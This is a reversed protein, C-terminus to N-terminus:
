ATRRGPPTRCKAKRSAVSDNAAHDFKREESMAALCCAIALYVAMGPEHTAHDKPFFM